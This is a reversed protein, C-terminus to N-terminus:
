VSFVRQGGIQEGFRTANPIGQGLRKTKQCNKFGQSATRAKGSSTGFLNLIKHGMEPLDIMSTKDLLGADVMALKFGLQYAQTTNM